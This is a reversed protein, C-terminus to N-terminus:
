RDDRLSDTSVGFLDAVRQVVPWSPVHKGALLHYVTARKVGLRRAVESVSLGAGAILARLKAPFPDPPAPPM